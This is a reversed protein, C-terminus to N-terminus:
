RIRPDDLRSQRVPFVHGFRKVVSTVLDRFWPPATPAVVVATILDSLVVPVEIGPGHEPEELNIHLSHGDEGEYLRVDQFLARVEHEHEFSMRKHFFPLPWSLPVKDADYDIYRVQGIVVSETSPSLAAKLRGVTTTIAVGERSSLYVRWMAASEYANINWCNVFTFFPLRESSYRLVNGLKTAEPWDVSNVRSLGGEFEDEFQDARSFFLAKAELLAVFKTFDMYRWLQTADPPLEVGDPQKLM